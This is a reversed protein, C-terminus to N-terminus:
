GDNAGTGVPRTIQAASLGPPKRELVIARRSSSAASQARLVNAAALDM